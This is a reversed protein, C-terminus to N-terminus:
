RGFAIVSEVLAHIHVLTTPSSLGATVIAALGALCLPWARGGTSTAPAAETLLRRVRRNLGDPTAFPSVSAANWSAPESLRAVKVLLEALGTREFSSNGTAADDAADEAADNWATVITRHLPTWRLADPTCAMCWRKLNDRSRLHSREHAAIVALENNSCAELVARAAILRPAFVGVLAVIPAGSDVGYAPVGPLPQDDLAVASGFWARELRRTVVATRAAMGISLVLIVVGAAALAVLLPGVAEFARVPELAVFGPTVLGLTVIAASVAPVARLVVLKRARVAAPEGHGAIGIRWVGAVILSAISSLVAYSALAVSLILLPRSM